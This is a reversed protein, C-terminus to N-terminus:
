AIKYSLVMAMEQLNPAAPIKFTARLDTENWVSMMNVSVDKNVHQQSVIIFSKSKKYIFYYKWTVKFM